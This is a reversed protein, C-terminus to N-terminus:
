LRIMMMKSILDHPRNVTKHWEENPKHFKGKEEM